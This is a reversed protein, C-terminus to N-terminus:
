FPPFLIYFSVKSITRLFVLLLEKSSNGTSSVLAYSCASTLLCLRLLVSFSALSFSVAAVSLSSFPESEESLLPAPIFPVMRLLPPESFLITDHKHLKFVNDLVKKFVHGHVLGFCPM